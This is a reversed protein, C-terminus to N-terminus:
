REHLQSNILEIIRGPSLENEAGAEELTECAIRCANLILNKSLSILIEEPTKPLLERALEYFCVFASRLAPRLPQEANEELSELMRQRALLFDAFLKVLLADQASTTTM